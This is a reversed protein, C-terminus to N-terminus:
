STRLFAQDALIEAHDFALKVPSLDAFWAASAADDGGQLEGGTVRCLYVVSVTHGRPDRGPKSYVGALSTIEVELATEERAERRCAEECTEGVEVFGGPLAWRGAFPPNARRILVLGRVPDVIVADVTLSVTGRSSM